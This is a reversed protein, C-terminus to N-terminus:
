MCIGLCSCFRDVFNLEKNVCYFSWLNQNTSYPTATHWGLHEKLLNM